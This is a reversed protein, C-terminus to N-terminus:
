IPPTQIERVDENTYQLIISSKTSLPIFIDECNIYEIDHTHVYYHPAVINPTFAYIPKLIHNTGYGFVSDNPNDYWHWKRLYGLMNKNLRYKSTLEFEIRSIRSYEEPVIYYNMSAPKIQVKEPIAHSIVCIANARIYPYNM